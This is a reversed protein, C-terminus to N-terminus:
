RRPLLAIVGCALLMLGTPEPVVRADALSSEEGSTVGVPDDGFGLHILDNSGGGRVAIGIRHVQLFVEAVDNTEIDVYGLLTSGFPGDDM